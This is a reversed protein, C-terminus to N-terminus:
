LIVLGALEKWGLAVEILQVGAWEILKEAVPEAGLREYFARSPNDALVWVMMARHGSESLHRAISSVLQRGIGMRQAARLLYIAMLESSYDTIGSREPGGTAFGVIGEAPHEAVYTFEKSEHDGLARAWSSEREDYSLSGLFSQPLLHAYTTRWSDVHVRAIAAADDPTAPRTTVFKVL